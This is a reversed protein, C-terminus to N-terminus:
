EGFVFRGLEHGLQKVQEPDDSERFREALEFFVKEKQKRAELGMEVLEVLVRNGSLRRKKAIADIEKDVQSPLTVSRRVQKTAAMCKDHVMITCISSIVVHEADTARLISIAESCRLSRADKPTVFSFLQIKSM